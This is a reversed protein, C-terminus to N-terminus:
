FLVQAVVCLFLLFLHLSFLHSIKVKGIMFVGLVGLVLLAFLPALDGFDVPSPSAAALSRILALFLSLATQSIRHFLTLSLPLFSLIASLLTLLLVPTMLPILFLSFLPAFPCTEGFLLLQVPFSIVFVCSAMVVSGMFLVASKHYWRRDKMKVSLLNWELQDILPSAAVLIGFTATFSLLFSPSVICHMEGAVLLCAAFILATVSDSRRRFLTGALPFTAMTCARFVSVQAGTFLYLFVIIPLMLVASQRRTLSLAKALLLVFGLITSVHLGSIALIHSSAIKRFAAEDEKPMESRDGLLIARCFAGTPSTGFHVKLRERGSSILSLLVSKGTVEWKGEPYALLDVGEQKDSKEVASSLFLSIRIREGPVGIQDTKVRIRGRPLTYTKLDFYDEGTEVVYGRVSAATGDFSLLHRDRLMESGVLILSFALGTAAFLLTWRVESEGKLAALIVLFLALFVFIVPVFISNTVVFLLTAFLFPIGISNLRQYIFFSRFVPASDM